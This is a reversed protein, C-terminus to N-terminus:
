YSGKKESIYYNLDAVFGEKDESVPNCLIKAKELDWNKMFEEAEQTGIKIGEAELLHFYPIIGKMRDTYIESAKQEIEKHKEEKSKKPMEANKKEYYSITSEIQRNEESM